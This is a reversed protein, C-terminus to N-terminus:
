ATWCIETGNGPELHRFNINLHTIFSASQAVSRCMIMKNDRDNDLTSLQPLSALMEQFWMVMNIVYM